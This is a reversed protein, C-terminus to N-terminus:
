FGILLALLFRKENEEGHLKSNGVNHSAVLSFLLKLAFFHKNAEKKSLRVSAPAVPLDCKIEYPTSFVKPSFIADAFPNQHFLFSSIPFVTSNKILHKFYTKVEFRNRTTKLIFQTVYPSCLDHHDNGIISGLESELQELIAVNALM